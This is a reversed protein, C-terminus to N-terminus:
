VETEELRTAKNESLDIELIKEVQSCFWIWRDNIAKINWEKNFKNANYDKVIQQTIWFSSVKKDDVDELGTGDYSKIKTEFKYNRADLNKSGSLLTLNAGSHIWEDIGEISKAFKWEDIKQYSRPLIHETQINRDGM